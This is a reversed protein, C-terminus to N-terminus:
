RFRKTKMGSLPYSRFFYIYGGFNPSYNVREIQYGASAVVCAAAAFFVLHLVLIKGYTSQSSALSARRAERWPTALKIWEGRARSCNMRSSTETLEASERWVVAYPPCVLVSGPGCGSAACGCRKRYWCWEWGMGNCTRRVRETGDRRDGGSSSTPTYLSETLRLPKTGEKPGDKSGGAM